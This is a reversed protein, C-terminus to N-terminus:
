RELREKSERKLDEAVLLAKNAGSRFAAMLRQGTQSAQAQLAQAQVGAAPQRSNGGTEAGPGLSAAEPAGSSRQQQSAEQRARARAERDHVPCPCADITHAGNIFSSVSM